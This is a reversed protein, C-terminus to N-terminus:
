SVARDSDTHRVNVIDRLGNAATCRALWIETDSRPPPGASWQAQAEAQLEAMVGQPDYFIQGTHWMHQEAGRGRAQEDAFYRRIQFPPNLFMEVEVGAVVLNRRQRRPQAIVIPRDIDSTRDGESRVRSGTALVGLLNNGFEAQLRALAQQLIAADQM